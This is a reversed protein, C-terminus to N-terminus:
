SHIGQYIPVLNFDLVVASSQTVSSVVQLFLISNFMAPQLPIVESAVAAIAFASGDFNTLPLFTGNPTKCVQFSINASTFGPPIIIAAPSTGGCNLVSSVTGSAAITVATNALNNENVVAVQYQSKLAM